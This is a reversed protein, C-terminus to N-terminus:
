RPKDYTRLLRVPVCFTDCLSRLELRGMTHGARSVNATVKLNGSAVSEFCQVHISSHFSPCGSESRQPM